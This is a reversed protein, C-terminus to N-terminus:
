WEHLKTAKGKPYSETFSSALFICHNMYTHLRTSTKLDYLQKWVIITGVDRWVGDSRHMKNITIHVM